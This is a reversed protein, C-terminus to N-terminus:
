GAIKDDEDRGDDSLRSMDMSDFTSVSASRALFRFVCCVLYVFLRFLRLCMIKRLVQLQVPREFNGPNSFFNRLRPLEKGAETLELHLELASLLFRQELLREAISDWGFVSEAM